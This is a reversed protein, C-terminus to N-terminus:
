LRIAKAVIGVVTVIAGFVVAIWGDPQCKWAEPAYVLAAAGVAICGTSIIEMATWTKLKEDLVAVRKDTDFYKTRFTSLDSNEEEMRDLEAVLMKQVGPNALDEDSLERKLRALAKRAKPIPVDVQKAGTEDPQLDSPPMKLISCLMGCGLPRSFTAVSSPYRAPVPVQRM